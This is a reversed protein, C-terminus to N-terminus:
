KLDKFHETLWDKCLDFCMNRQEGAEYAAEFAGDSYEGQQGYWLLNKRLLDISKKKTLASLKPILPEGDRTLEDALLKAFTSKSVPHDIRIKM